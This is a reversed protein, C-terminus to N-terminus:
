KAPLEQSPEECGDTEVHIFQHIMFALRPDAPHVAGPHERELSFRIMQKGDELSIIEFFGAFTNKESTPSLTLCCKEGHRIILKTGATPVTIRYHIRNRKSKTFF